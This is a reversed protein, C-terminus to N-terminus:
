AGDEEEEKKWQEKHSKRFSHYAERWQRSAALLPRSTSDGAGNKEPEIKEIETYSPPMNLGNRHVIKNKESEQTWAPKHQRHKGRLAAALNGCVVGGSTLKSVSESLGEPDAGVSNTFLPSKKKPVATSPRIPLALATNVSPTGSATAPRRCKRDDVELEQTSQIGLHELSLATAGGERDDDSQDPTSQKGEQCWDSGGEALLFGDLQTLRPLTTIISAKYGPLECVPCDALTLERLEECLSLFSVQLLSSVQNSKLDLVRLLPLTALLGLDSVANNPAYLELLGSVGFLGDLSLLSCRGVRLIRLSDLGYGLPRLTQLHSGSLDLEHLHPLYIHLRQLSTQGSIVKLKISTVEHYDETGCTQTLLQPLSTNDVPLIDPIPIIPVSPFEDDVLDDDDSFLDNASTDQSMDIQEGLTMFYPAM